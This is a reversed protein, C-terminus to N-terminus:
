VCYLLSCSTSVSWSLTATVHSSVSNCRNSFNNLAVKAHLVAKMLQKSYRCNFMYCDSAILTRFVVVCVVFLSSCVYVFLSLLPPHHLLLVRYSVAHTSDSQMTERKDDRGGSSSCLAVLSSTCTYFTVSQTQDKTTELSM